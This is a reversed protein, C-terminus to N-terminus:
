VGEPYTGNENNKIGLANGRALIDIGQPSKRGL